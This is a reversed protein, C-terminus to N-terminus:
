GAAELARHPSTPERRRLTYLTTQKPTWTRFDQGLGAFAVKPPQCERGLEPIPMVKVMTSGPLKSTKSIHSAFRLFYTRGSAWFGHQRRWRTM